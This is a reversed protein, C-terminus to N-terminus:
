VFLGKHHPLAITNSNPLWEPIRVQNFEQHSNSREPSTLIAEGFCEYAPWEHPTEGAQSELPLALRPQALRHLGNERCLQPLLAV